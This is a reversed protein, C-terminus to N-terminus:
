ANWIWVISNGKLVCTRYDLHIEDILMGMIM